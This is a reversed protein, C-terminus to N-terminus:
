RPLANPATARHTPSCSSAPSSQSANKQTTSRCAMVTACSGAASRCRVSTVAACYRASPISGAREVTKTCLWTGACVWNAHTSPQKVPNPCAERIVCNLSLDTRWPLSEVM